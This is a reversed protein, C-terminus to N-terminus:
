RRGARDLNAARAKHYQNDRRNVSWNQVSYRNYQSQKERIFLKLFHNM